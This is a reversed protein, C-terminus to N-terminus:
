VTVMSCGHPPSGGHAFHFLVFSGVFYAVALFGLGDFCVCVCLIVFSLCMSVYSGAVYFTPLCCCCVYTFLLLLRLYVVVTFTPLRSTFEFNRALLLHDHAHAPPGIGQGIWSSGREAFVDETAEDSSTNGGIVGM